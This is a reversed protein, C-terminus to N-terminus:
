AFVAAIAAGQGAPVVVFLFAKSTNINEGGAPTSESKKGTITVVDFTTNGAAISLDLMSVPVGFEAASTGSNPYQTTVGRKIDSELQLQRIQEVTGCGSFAPTTLTYLWNTDNIPFSRSPIVEMALRFHRNIDTSIIQLGDTIAVATFFESDAALNIQAAIAALSAVFSVTIRSNYTYSPLNGNLPTTEIIKFVLEQSLQVTGANRVLRADQLTPARYPTNVAVITEGIMPTPSVTTATVGDTDTVYSFFVPMKKQAATLATGFTLGKAIKTGDNVFAQYHGAVGTTPFTSFNVNNVATRAIFGQALEFPVGTTTKFFRNKIM